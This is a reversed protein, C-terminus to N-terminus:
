EQIISYLDLVQVTHYINTKAVLLSSKKIQSYQVTIVYETKDGLIPRFSTQGAETM